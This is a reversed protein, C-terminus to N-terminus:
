QHFKMWYSSILKYGRLLVPLCVKWTWYTECIHQCANLIRSHHLLSVQVQKKKWFIMYKCFFFLTKPLQENIRVFTWSHLFNPCPSICRPFVPVLVRGGNTHYGSCLFDQNCCILWWTINDKSPRSIRLCLRQQLARWSEQDCYEIRFPNVSYLDPM